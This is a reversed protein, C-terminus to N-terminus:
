ILAELLTEGFGDEISSDFKPHSVIKEFLNYM